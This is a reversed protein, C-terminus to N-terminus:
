KNRHSRNIRRRTIYSVLVGKSDIVLLIGLLKELIMQFMVYYSNIYPEVIINYLISKGISAKLIDESAIAQVRIRHREFVEKARELHFGITVLVVDVGSSGLDELLKGVEDANTHTDFSKKELYIDNFVADRVFRFICNFMASAESFPYNRYTYGSSFIIHSAIGFKMLIAAATATIFSAISLEVHGRPDLRWNKGLIIVPRNFNINLELPCRAKPLADLLEEQYM